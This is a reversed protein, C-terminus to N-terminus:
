ITKINYKKKPCSILSHFRYIEILFMKLSQFLFYPVSFRLQLCSTLCSERTLKEATKATDFREFYNQTNNSKDYM